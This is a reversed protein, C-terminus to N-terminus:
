SEVPSVLKPHHHKRSRSFVNRIQLAEAGFRTVARREFQGTKQLKQPRSEVKTSGEDLQSDVFKEEKVDCSGSNLSKKQKDRHVAPMSELGM